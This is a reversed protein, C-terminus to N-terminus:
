MFCISACRMNSCAGWTVFAPFNAFFTLSNNHNVLNALTNEEGFNKVTCYIVMTSIGCSTGVDRTTCM